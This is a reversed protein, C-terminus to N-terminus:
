APAHVSLYQQLVGAAPGLIDYREWGATAALAFICGGVVYDNQRMANDFWVLQEIYAGPGWLGYGNDAWYQQFDQWGRGESPGPRDNKVLGDVGLETFILPVVMGAPKLIENYVKRYRLTHWGSDEPSVGPYRGQNDRTSLFYIVPAGYEHLGLWGNNEKVAQIAPMFYQWQELPPSGTAFNGVVSRIGRAALLRTREAEFDGLRKMEDDNGVVPENYAEWGDFYPRRREDEAIPLLRNVFDHAAAIPDLTALSLQPLDIRGILLTRPSKAKIDAAFNPDLELTKVVTVAQTSLVDFMQPSYRGVFLGLKSPPGAPFPTAVPTATPPPVPTPVTTATPEPLLAVEEAGGNAIYPLYVEQSGPTAIPSLPSISGTPTWTPVSRATPTAGESGWCASAALASVGSAVGMLFRRRSLAPKQPTAEQNSDVKEVDPQPNIDPECNNLHLNARNNDQNEM